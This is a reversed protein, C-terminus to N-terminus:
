PYRVLFDSIIANIEDNADELLFHGAQKMEYVEAEPYYYKWRELVKPSFCWDQMGWILAIPLGRFMWLGHEIELLPEFSPDDPSMPIDEIFRLIAIRNAYNDYPMRYGYKVLEPMPNVTTMHQAAKVFINAKRVLFDNLVPIRCVAIRLPLFSFSFAASNLIVLRKILNSHRMAFGMGIAGGWDHVILTINELKLTQILYELNDIHSDLRYMYNQPKDSLGCGMHDPVVVQHNGSLQKILNRYFFSWTPNGHVMVIPSGTGENLYHYQHSRITIFNAKFPYLERIQSIDAM